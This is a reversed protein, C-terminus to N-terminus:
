DWYWVCYVHPNFIHSIYTETETIIDIYVAGVETKTDIDTDIGIEVLSFFSRTYKELKPQKSVLLSVSCTCIQNM